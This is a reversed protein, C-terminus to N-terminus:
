KAVRRWARALVPNLRERLHSPLPLKRWLHRLRRYRTPPAGWERAAKRDWQRRVFLGLQRKDTSQGVEAPVTADPLWLLLLGRGGLEPLPAVRVALEAETETGMLTHAATGHGGTAFLRCRQGGRYAQANLRLREGRAQAPTLPVVLLAWKGETWRGLTEPSSFGELFIPAESPPCDIIRQRALAWLERMKPKASALGRLQEELAEPPQIDRGSRHFAFDQRQLAIHECSSRQGPSIARISWERRREADAAQSLGNTVSMPIALEAHTQLENLYATAACELGYHRTLAVFQDWDVEGGAANLLFYGETVRTFCEIRDWPECRAMACFLQHTASPILVARGHLQATTASDWFRQGLAPDRINWLPRWHLDLGRQRGRKVEVGADVSDILPRGFDEWAHGPPLFGHERLISVAAPIDEPRVFLDYDASVRRRELEPARAFLAAGKMLLARIGRGELLELTDFLLRVRLVNNTWVQRAVGRMRALDADVLGERAILEVLLPLIRHSEGHAADLPGIARWQSFAAVAEPGTHSIARLLLRAPPSLLGSDNM